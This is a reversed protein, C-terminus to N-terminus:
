IRARTVRVGLWVLGIPLCMAALRDIHDIANFVTGHRLVVEPSQYVIISDVVQWVLFGVTGIVLLLPAAGGFRRFLLVAGVTGVVWVALQIYPVYVVNM